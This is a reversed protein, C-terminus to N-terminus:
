FTPDVGRCIFRMHFLFLALPSKTGVCVVQVPFCLQDTQLQMGWVAAEERCMGSLWCSLLSISCWFSPSARPWECRPGLWCLHSFTFLHYTDCKHVFDYGWCSHSIARKVHLFVESKPFFVQRFMSHDALFKWYINPLFDYLIMMAFPCLM